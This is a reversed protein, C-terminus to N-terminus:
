FPYSYGTGKDYGYEHQTYKYDVEYDDDSDEYYYGNYYSKKESKDKKKKSRSDGM